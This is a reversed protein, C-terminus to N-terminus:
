YVKEHPFVVIGDKKMELPVLSRSHNTGRMKLVELARTRGEKEPYYLVIVGDAIFQELTFKMKGKTATAIDATLLVTCNMKTLFSLFNFLNKRFQMPTPFYLKLITSSDIVARKVGVHDVSSQLVDLFNEFDYNEIKTITIDGKQIM